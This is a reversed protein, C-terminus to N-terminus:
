GTEKKEKSQVKGLKMKKFNKTPFKLNRRWMNKKQCFFLDVDGDQRIRGM